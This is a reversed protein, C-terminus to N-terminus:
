TECVRATSSAYPCVEDYDNLHGCTSGTDHYPLLTVDGPIEVASSIDEGGERLSYGAPLGLSRAGGGKGDACYSTTDTTYVLSTNAHVLLVGGANPGALVLAPVIMLVFALACRSRM